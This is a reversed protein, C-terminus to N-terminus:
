TDNAAALIRVAQDIVHDPLPPASRALEAGYAELRDREAATM